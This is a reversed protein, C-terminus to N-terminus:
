TIRMLAELRKTLTNGRKVLMDVGLGHCVVEVEVSDASFAKKLNEINNVIAGFAAKSGVNVEFVVRHERVRALAGCCLLMACCLSVFLKAFTSSKM